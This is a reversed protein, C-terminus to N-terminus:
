LYRFSVNYNYNFFQFLFIRKNSCFAVHYCVCIIDDSTLVVNLCVKCTINQEYHTRKTKFSHLSDANQVSIKLTQKFIVM